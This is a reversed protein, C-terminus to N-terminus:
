PPGTLGRTQRHASDSVNSPRGTLARENAEAASGTDSATPPRSQAPAIRVAPRHRAKSASSLGAWVAILVGVILLAGAISHGDGQHQVFLAVSLLAVIAVLAVAGDDVFLGWLEFVVARTVREAGGVRADQRAPRRLIWVFALSALGYAAVLVLLSLDNGWWHVGIGEGTFFTGFATLMIGVVYKMAKEPVRTLPRRFVVGAGAVVLLAALAGIM